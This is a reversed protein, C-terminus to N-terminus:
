FRKIEGKIEIKPHRVVARYEYEQNSEVGEIEVSFDESKEIDIFKSYSWEGGSLNEVFGAYPRYLFGVQLKKGDGSNILEGHLKVKGHLVEADL